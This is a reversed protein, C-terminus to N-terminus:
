IVVPQQEPFGPLSITRMESLALKLEPLYKRYINEARKRKYAISREMGSRDIITDPRDELRLKKMEIEMADAQDLLQVHQLKYKDM